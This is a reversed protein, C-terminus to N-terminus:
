CGVCLALATASTANRGAANFARVAYYASRGGAERDVYEIRGNPTGFAPPTVTAALTAPGPTFWRTRSRHVEYRTVVERGGRTDIASPLWSVVVDLGERRAEVVTVARPTEIKDRELLVVGWNSNVTVSVRGGAVTVVGGNLADVLVTGNRLNYPPRNLGSFTATHAANDRNLAILATQLGTTRAFGYIRAADDVVLGHQVDGDQLARYSQRISAMRRAHPLLNTTDAPYDGPQDDWPFPARNYPDDEYKGNAFMGDHTLGVEDGYYLTPAGAYTFALIWLEKMRQVAAADDDRNAKKLLFRVRNTDHSGALNMMAKFAMPPYDEWISLLRANLQSPSLPEIPGSSSARNSDNDEFLTGGACGDGQCGTALWGLAASRFRYNMASDWENGLLWPTADGWEEGLLLTDGKGTGQIDRVAARFGEWYDNTPDGTLGPDVDAGVDFRWGDAGMLTWFPGVSNLGNAWILSRVAASNARLKPLSSYGYWAEYSQTGGGSGNACRAVDGGDRGPNGSDPFYFWDYYASDRGECAGSDDDQGNGDPATLLGMADYRHYRDFYTSDSSTHNFVGDLILKIGRARAAEALERFDVLTGFDPDIVRFDATDYKHNSPARFVPNLYLVSVGLNDFYGARIKEKIGALDGGYFNDGYRDPCGPQSVGRPDCVATNWRTGNSQVIAGGQSAYSFRGVRPDNSANGNRFRDPFIQYVVGRQMWSPVSFTRDYVTLQYSNDYAASQNGEVQGWGGGYFKPDDDRYFATATGDVVRFVYYLATPETPIPLRVTWYTVEGLNADRAHEAASLPHTSETNTRDNWVRVHVAQADNRCTRLRLTVAGQTNPVPGIPLRYGTAFSDHGLGVWFINNDGAAAGACGVQQAAVTSIMAGGALTCDACGLGPLVFMMSMWLMVLGMRRGHQAMRALM